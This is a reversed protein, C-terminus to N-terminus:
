TEIELYLSWFEGLVEIKMGRVRRRIQTHEESENGARSRLHPPVYRVSSELTPERATSEVLAVEADQTEVPNSVAGATESVVNDQAQESLKKKKRKRSGIKTPVEELAVDAGNTEESKPMEVELDGESEGELEQELSKQKKRKKKAPQEEAKSNDEEEVSSHFVSPIGEFLVNLADDEGRIKGNKVKLKKALKKELELDEEASISSNPVDLKLFEEFKTKRAGKDLDKKRRKTKKSSTSEKQCLCNLKVEDEESLILEKLSQNEESNTQAFLGQSKKGHKLKVDKNIRKLKQSKQM